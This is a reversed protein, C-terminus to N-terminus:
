EINYGSTPPDISIAENIDAVVSIDDIMQLANYSRGHFVLAQNTYDSLTITETSTWRLQEDRYFSYTGDPNTVISYKMWLNNHEADIWDEDFYETGVQYRIFEKSNDIGLYIWGGAFGPQGETGTYAAATTTSWGVQLNQWYLQTSNGLAWFDLTPLSSLDFNQYSTVGSQWNADGQPDFAQSGNRGEGSMISPLPSGWSKWKSSDIGSEWDESFIGAQGLLTVIVTATDAGGNGDIVTYTFSDADNFSSSPTYIFNAGSQTVSGHVGQTYASISLSDGDADNDNNLAYITVPSAKTTTVSDDTAIPDDNVINDASGGGCATLFLCIFTIYISDKIISMM